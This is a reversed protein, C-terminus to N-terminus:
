KPLCSHFGTNGNVRGQIGHVHYRPLYGKYYVNRIDSELEKRVRVETSLASYKDSPSKVTNVTSPPPALISWRALLLTSRSSVLRCAHTVVASIVFITKPAMRLVYMMQKTEWCGQRCSVMWGRTKTM